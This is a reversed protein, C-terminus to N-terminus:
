KGLIFSIIPQYTVGTEGTYWVITVTILTVLLGGQVWLELGEAVYIYGINWVKNSSNHRLLLSNGLITITTVKEILM